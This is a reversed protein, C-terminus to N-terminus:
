TDSLLFGADLARREVDAPDDVKMAVGGVSTLYLYEVNVCADGLLGLLEALRGADRGSM